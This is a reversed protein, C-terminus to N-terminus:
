GTSDDIRKFGCIAIDASNEKANNYLKEVFDPEVYDDSDTFAIYEGTAVKIGDIRAKWVGENKKDIIVINKDAYKEKYEKLIQLSNDPSGDNVCIIEVEDLTQNTLSDLTRKLYKETKYIPVIISVKM